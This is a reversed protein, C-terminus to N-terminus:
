TGGGDRQPVIDDIFEMNSNGRFFAMIRDMLSEIQFGSKNYRSNLVHMLVTEFSYVMHKVCGWSTYPTGYKENFTDGYDSDTTNSNTSNTTNISTSSYLGKCLTNLGCTLYYKSSHDLMNFYIRPVFVSGIMPIFVLHYIDFVFDDCPRYMTGHGDWGSLLMMKHTLLHQMMNPKFLINTSIQHILFLKYFISQGYAYWKPRIHASLVYPKYSLVDETSYEGFKLLTSSLLIPQYPGTIRAAGNQYAHYYSISVDYLPAIYSSMQLPLPTVNAM